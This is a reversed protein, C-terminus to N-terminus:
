GGRQIHFPVADEFAEARQGEHPAEEIEKILLFDEDADSLRGKMLNRAPGVSLWAVRYDHAPHAGCGPLHEAVLQRAPLRQWESM